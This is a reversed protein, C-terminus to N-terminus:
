RRSLGSSVGVRMSNGGFAVGVNYGRSWVRVCNKKIGAHILDFRMPLMDPTSVQICAGGVSMDIVTCAIPDRDPSIVAVARSAAADKPSIRNWRRNDIMAQEWVM